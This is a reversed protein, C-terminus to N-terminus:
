KLRYLVCSEGQYRGGKKKTDRVRERKTAQAKIPSNMERRLNVARSSERSHKDREAEQTRQAEGLRSHRNCERGQM